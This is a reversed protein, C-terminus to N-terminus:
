PRAELAKEIENEIMSNIRDGYIINFADELEYWQGDIKIARKIRENWVPRNHYETRFNGFDHVMISYGSLDFIQEIKSLKLTLKIQIM